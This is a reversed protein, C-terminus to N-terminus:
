VSTGFIVALMTYYGILASLEVVGKNGYRAKAAEFTADSVRCDHALERAFGVILAEVPTLSDLSAKEDIVRLAEERAGAERARKSHGRWERDCNHERAATCIALELEVQSFITDFRLYAGLHAVRRAVEPSHLLFTFPHSVKGRSAVIEDFIAHQGEPLEEKLTIEPIRTM